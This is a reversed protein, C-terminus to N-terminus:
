KKSLVLYGWKKSWVKNNWTYKKTIIIYEYFIIAPKIKIHSKKNLWIM